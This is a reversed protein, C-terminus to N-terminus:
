TEDAVAEHYAAQAQDWAAFVQQKVSEWTSATADGIAEVKEGLTTRSDKLMEWAESRSDEAEASAVEAQAESIEADLRALMAEAQEDFEERQAFSYDRLDEWAEAIADTAQESAATVTAGAESMMEAARTQTDDESQACASLILTSGLLSAGAFKFWSALRNTKM